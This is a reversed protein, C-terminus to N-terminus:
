ETIVEMGEYLKENPSIEYNRGSDTVVNKIYIKKPPVYPYPREADDVSCYLPLLHAPGEFETDNIRLGDITITHPMCCEFGFDHKGNNWAVFMSSNKVSSSFYAVKRFNWYCNKITLTGNWIAGYDPRLHFFEYCRTETDEIYADGFGILLLGEHGFLCKKVTINTVGQHADVRSLECGELYLNKCFNSTFIGWYRVDNIDISQRLNIFKVNISAMSNIDYSGMPVNKGPVQSATYYIRHPTLLCDKITVNVSEHTNIFASYPAGHDGEGTVYHKIGSLTVNSRNIVFGHTHYKYFSEYDNAISTFVGGKIEIPTDDICKAYAKTVTPYEWDISPTINGSKDLIFCDTAAVGSNMNLGERIFIKNNDNFIRVYLNGEHPIDLTKQGKKMSAIELDFRNFDSDVSFLAKSRNEESIGRDDIIFEADGFDVDTKISVVVPRSSVYYKVGSKVKVPVNTKNAEDHCAKIADLDDAVGDGVAGFDEYTLYKGSM